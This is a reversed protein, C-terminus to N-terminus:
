ANITKIYSKLIEEIEEDSAYFLDKGEGKLSININDFIQGLRMGNEILIGVLENVKTEM